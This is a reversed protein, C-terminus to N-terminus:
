RAEPPRYGWAKIADAAEPTSAAWEAIREVREPSLDAPLPSLGDGFIDAHSAVNFSRSTVMSTPPGLLPNSRWDIPEDRRRRPLKTLLFTVLGFNVGVSLILAINM